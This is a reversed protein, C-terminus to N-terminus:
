DDTIDFFRKVIRNILKEIDTLKEKKEERTM